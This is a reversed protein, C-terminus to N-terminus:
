DWGLDTPEKPRKRWFIKHQKRCDQGCSEHLVQVAVVADDVVVMRLPNCLRVAACCDDTDGGTIELQPFRKLIQERCSM